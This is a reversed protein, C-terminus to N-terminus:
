EPPSSEYWTEKVIKGDKFELIAVSPANTVPVNADSYLLEVVAREGFQTVFYSQVEVKFTPDLLSQPMFSRLDSLGAPSKGCDLGSCDDWAIDDAYLALLAKPDRNKYAALWKEVIAQSAKSYQNDSVTIKIEAPAAALATASSVAITHPLAATAQTAPTTAVPIATAPQSSGCATLPFIFVTVLLLLKKM